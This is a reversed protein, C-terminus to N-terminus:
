EVIDGRIFAAAEATAPTDFFAQARGTEHVRGRYLFVVESALRRAQGINHTAMFIRTGAALAEGLITEIERISRGDLNATPEDLFLIQPSRVLARALAMKQREGGSLVEAPRELAQALGVRGAWEAARARAEERGMGHLRLPYAINDIVSRRLLVPTQFVFAQAARAVAPPMGWRVRGAALRELGHLARLLTTKGAGNPGMLITLGEESIDLDVPGVLTRGRRRVTVGEARAPLIANVM